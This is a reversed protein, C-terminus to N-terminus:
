ADQVRSDVRCGEQILHPLQNNLATPPTPPLVMPDCGLGAGSWTTDWKM